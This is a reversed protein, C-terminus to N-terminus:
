ASGSCSPPPLESRCSLQPCCFVRCPGPTTMRGYPKRCFSPIVKRPCCVVCASTAAHKTPGPTPSFRQCLQVDRPEKGRDIRAPSPQPKGRCEMVDSHSLSFLRCRPWACGRNVFNGFKKSKHMFRYGFLAHRKDIRGWARVWANRTSRAGLLSSRQPMRMSITMPAFFPAQLRARGYLCITPFSAANGTSRAKPRRGPKLRSRRRPWFLWSRFSPPWPITTPWARLGLSARRLM